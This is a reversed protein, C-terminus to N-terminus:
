REDLWQPARVGNGTLNDCAVYQVDVRQIGCVARDPDYSNTEGRDQRASAPSVTLLLAFVATSVLTSAVVSVRRRTIHRTNHSNPNM